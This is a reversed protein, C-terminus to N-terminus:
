IALQDFLYERNKVLVFFPAKELGLENIDTDSKKFNELISSRFRIFGSKVKLYKTVKSSNEQGLGIGRFVISITKAIFTTLDCDSSFHNNM